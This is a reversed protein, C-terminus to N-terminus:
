IYFLYNKEHFLQNQLIYKEPYFVRLLNKRVCYIVLTHDITVFRINVDANELLVAKSASGTLKYVDLLHKSYM